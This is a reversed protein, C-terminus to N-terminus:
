HMGEIQREKIQKRYSEPTMGVHQKFLRSFHALHKFGVEFGVDTVSQNPKLLFEIRAQNIRRRYVYEFITVGTVEKFLKSLYYKSVHLAEELHDLHLDDTYHVELYSIIDQVTSEKKSNFDEKHQMPQLCQDYILYLLDVFALQMRNYGIQNGKLRHHEMLGLLREVELKVEGRLSLRHNRLEQFPQLINVSNAMTLFPAVGAPEFHIISRVYQQSPDIKVCHLTMGHMLILDGPALVYIKDGILYSCKGGHFYYVEHFSHSHFEPEIPLTNRFNFDIMGQRDFETRLM